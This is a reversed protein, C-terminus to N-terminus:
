GRVGTLWRKMHWELRASLSRPPEEVLIVLQGSAHASCAFVNESPVTFPLRFTQGPMLLTAGFIQPVDDSNKLVLVDRVGLLLHITQPLIEREEGAMRRAWTGKPIDFVEERSEFTIPLLAVGGTAALLAAGIAPAFFWPRLTRRLERASAVERPALADTGVAEGGHAPGRAASLDGERTVDNGCSFASIM